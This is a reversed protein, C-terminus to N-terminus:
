AENQATALFLLHKEFTWPRCNVGGRNLQNKRWQDRLNKWQTKLELLGGSYGNEAMAAHIRNWSANKKDLRSYDEISPNWICEEEEVLSILQCKAAFDM